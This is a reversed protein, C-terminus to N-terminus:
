RSDIRRARYPVLAKPDSVMAMLVRPLASAYLGALPDSGGFADLIAPLPPVKSSSEGQISPAVQVTIGLGTELDVLQTEFLQITPM